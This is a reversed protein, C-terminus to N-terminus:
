EQEGIEKMINNVDEETLKPTVDMFAGYLASRDQRRAQKRIERKLLLKFVLSPKQLESRISKEDRCAWWLKILNTVISIIISITVPDIGYDGNKNKARSSIESALKKLNM